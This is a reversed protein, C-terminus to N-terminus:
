AFFGVAGTPGFAQIMRPFSVTLIGAWFLNTAVSLSMGVESMLDANLYNLICDSSVATFCLFPKQRTLSLSLVRALPTFPLSFTSSSRLRRYIPGM